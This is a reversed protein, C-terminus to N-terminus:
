EARGALGACLDSLEFKLHWAKMDLEFSPSCRTRVQKHAPEIGARNRHGFLLRDHLASKTVFQNGM